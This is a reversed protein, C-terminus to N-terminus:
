EGGGGATGRPALVDASLLDARLQAVQDDTAAILPSRVTRNALVGALQLAAKAMVAGQARTMVATVAPILSRDIKRAAPLDGDAMAGILDAYQRGAVHGVVSVIGAAGLALWALNLLDDGSYLALGTEHMLRSGAFLDGSADKVAVVRPHEAARVLTEWSLKVSTRGPIDYLMAPLDTADAVARFHAVIGDQPPKSYYPTVVLLGDAGAAAAAQAREVSHRTDNTGVGAVVSARDGVAGVVARLLLVQEGDTTTPAEGTTGSVVLGDHGHEVLHEALRAAAAPDLDGDDTFPTVM